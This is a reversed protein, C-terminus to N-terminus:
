EVRRNKNLPKYLNIKERPMWGWNISRTPKKIIEEITPFKDNFRKWYGYLSDGDNTIKEIVCINYRHDLVRRHTWLQDYYIIDGVKFNYNSYDLKEV